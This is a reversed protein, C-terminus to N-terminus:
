ILVREIYNAVLETNTLQRNIIREVKWETQKEILRTREIDKIMFESALHHNGDLEVIINKDPILFDAIFFTDRKKVKVYIIKQFEYKVNYSKLLAKFQKEANTQKEILKSRFREATARMKILQAETKDTEDLKNQKKKSRVKKKPNFPTKNRIAQRIFDVAEDNNQVLSILHSLEKDSFSYKVM